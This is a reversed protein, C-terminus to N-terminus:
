MECCPFTRVVFPLIKSKSIEPSAIIEILWNLPPTPPSGDGVPSSLWCLSRESERQKRVNNTEANGEKKRLNSYFCIKPLFHDKLSTLMSVDWWGTEWIVFLRKSGRFRKLHDSIVCRYSISLDPTCSIEHHTQWFWLATVCSDARCLCCCTCSMWNEM